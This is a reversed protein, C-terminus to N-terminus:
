TAQAAAGGRKAGELLPEVVRGVPEDTLPEGTVLLRLYFPAILSEILFDADTEAPLEGRAVARQVMVRAMGLRERWFARTRAAIAPSQDAATVLTKVLARGPPAQLNHVAATGFAVLDGRLSGTDPLPAM